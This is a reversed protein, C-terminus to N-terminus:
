DSITMVSCYEIKFDEITKFTKIVKLTEDITKFTKNIFFPILGGM